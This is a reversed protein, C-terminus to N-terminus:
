VTVWRWYCVFFEISNPGATITTGKAYLHPMLNAKTSSTKASNVWDTTKFRRQGPALRYTIGIHSDPILTNDIKDDQNIPFWVTAIDLVDTPQWVWADAIIKEQLKLGAAFAADAHRIANPSWSFSSAGFKGAASLPRTVYGWTAGATPTTDADMIWSDRNEISIDGDSVWCPTAMDPRWRMRHREKKGAPGYQIIKEQLEYDGTGLEAVNNAVAAM